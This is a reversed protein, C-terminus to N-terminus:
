CLHTIRDKLWRTYGVQGTARLHLGNSRFWEPHRASVRSWPLVQVGYDPALDALIANFEGSRAPWDEHVHSTTKLNVWLVCDVNEVDDRMVARIRQRLEAATARYSVDNLGLAIVVQEYGQRNFQRLAPRGQRIDVGGYAQVYGNRAEIEERADYTVSDGAIAWTFGSTVFVVVILALALPVLRAGGCRSREALRRM